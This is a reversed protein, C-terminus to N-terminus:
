VIDIITGVDSSRSEVSSSNILRVVNIIAGIMSGVANHTMMVVVVIAINVAEHPMIRSVVHM